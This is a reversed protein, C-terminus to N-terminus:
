ADENFMPQAGAALDIIALRTHALGIGPAVHMGEGDPGRHTQARNMRELLLRDIPATGQPDFIGVFGCM